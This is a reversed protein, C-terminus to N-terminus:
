FRYTLLFPQRCSITVSFVLILLSGFQDKKMLAVKTTFKRYM